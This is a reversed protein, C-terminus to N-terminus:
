MYLCTVINSIFMQLDNVTNFRSNKAHLNIEIQELKDLKRGKECVHLLQVNKERQYTHCAESLHQAFASKAEGDEDTLSNRRRNATRWSSEHEKIRQLLPRGTQGIYVVNCQAEGCTLRYVGSKEWISVCINM